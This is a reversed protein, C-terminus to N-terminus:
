SLGELRRQVRLVTVASWPKGSPTAIQRANLERAIANASLERLEAFVPRLAEAREDAAQMRMATKPRLGGLKKGQAKLEALADKTRQSIMRREKEALAAYLHLMFPDVDAGLEAVIFPTRHAMLGSIFHVDRSLRDLKAVIVPAKHKKALKMAAALQPRKELADRGEGTEIEAFTEILDFGEAKAFAALAAQQAELGIGPKGKKNPKSLRTYAIAPQM